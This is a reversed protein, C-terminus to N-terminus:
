RGVEAALARAHEQTVLRAEIQGRAHACGFARRDAFDEREQAPEIKAALEGVRGGEGAGGVDDGRVAPQAAEVLAEVPAVELREAGDVDVRAVLAIALRERAVGALQGLLEAVGLHHQEARHRRGLVDLHEVLGEGLAQDEGDVEDPAAVHRAAREHQM